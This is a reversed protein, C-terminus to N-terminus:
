INEYYDVIWLIILTILPIITLMLIIPEYSVFDIYPFTSYPKEIPSNHSTQYTYETKNFAVVLVLSIMLIGLFLIIISKLGEKFIEKRKNQKLTTKM